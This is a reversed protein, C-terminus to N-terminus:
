DNPLAQFVCTSVYSLVETVWSLDTNWEPSTNGSTVSPASPLWFCPLDIKLQKTTGDGNNVKCGTHKTTNGGGGEDGDKVGERSVEEKERELRECIPPLDANGEFLAGRRCWLSSRCSVSLHATEWTISRWEPDHTNLTPPTKEARQPKAHILDRMCIMAATWQRHKGRSLTHWHTIGTFRDGGPPVSTSPPTFNFLALYLHPVLPFSLILIVTLSNSVSVAGQPTHFHTLSAKWCM